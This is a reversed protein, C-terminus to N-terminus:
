DGDSSDQGPTWETTTPYQDYEGDEPLVLIGLWAMLQKFAQMVKGLAELVDDMTFPLLLFVERETYVTISVM